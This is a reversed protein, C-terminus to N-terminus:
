TVVYRPCHSRASQTASLQCAVLSLTHLVQPRLFTCCLLPGCNHSGPRRALVATIVFPSLILATMLSLITKNNADESKACLGVVALFFAGRLRGLASNCARFSATAACCCCIWVRCCCNCCVLWCSCCFACCNWCVWCCSCCACCVAASAWCFAADTSDDAAELSATFLRPELNASTCVVNVLLATEAWSSCFRTEASSLESPWKRQVPSTRTRPSLKKWFNVPQVAQLSRLRARTRMRKPNSPLSSPLSFSSKMAPTAIAVPECPSGVVVLSVRVLKKSRLVMESSLPYMM